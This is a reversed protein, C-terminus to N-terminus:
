FPMKIGSHEGPSDKFIAGRGILNQKLSESIGLNCGFQANEVNAGSLNASSLDAGSLYADCLNANGLKAGSLDAGSLNAGSLNAGSLNAGSLNAGNLYAGNLYAGSFNLYDDLTQINKISAVKEPQAKQITKQFIKFFFSNEAILDALQKVIHYYPRKEIERM